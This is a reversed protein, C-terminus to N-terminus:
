DVLNLLVDVMEDAMGLYDTLRIDVEPYQQQKNAVLQPIHEAVHAGCSLFYPLVQVSTAGQQICNEIADPISPSALELFAPGIIDFRLAAKSALRAALREVEKNSEIRRSGHAVLLLAKM